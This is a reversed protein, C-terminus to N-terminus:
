ANSCVKNTHNPHPQMDATQTAWRIPVSAPDLAAAARVLHSYHRETTTVSQHRLFLQAAYIGYRMAVWSGSLARLAHAMKQTQWGCGTMLSSIRRFVDDRRETDSGTLLAGHGPPIQARGESWYPEIATVQLGLAGSKQQIADPEMRIGTPTLHEHCVKAIESLRLGCSLALWIATAVNRDTGWAARWVELTADIVELSPSQWAKVTEAGLRRRRGKFEAVTAALDPM